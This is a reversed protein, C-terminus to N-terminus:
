DPSTDPFSLSPESRPAWASQGQHTSSVSPLLVAPVPSGVMFNQFSGSVEKARRDSLQALLQTM